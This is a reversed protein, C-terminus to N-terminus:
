AVTSAFDDDDDDDLRNCPAIVRARRPLRLPTNLAPQSARVEALFTYMSAWELLGNVM